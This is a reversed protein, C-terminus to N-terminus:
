LKRVYEKGKGFTRFEYGKEINKEETVPLRCMFECGACRPGGGVVMARHLGPKKCPKYGEPLAYCPTQLRMGPYALQDPKVVAVRELYIDHM